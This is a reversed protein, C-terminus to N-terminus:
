AWTARRRCLKEYLHDVLPLNPVTSLEHTTGVQLKAMVALGHRARGRLLMALFRESPGSTRWATNTSSTGGATPCRGSGGREWDLLLTVDKPCAPAAADAAPRARLM